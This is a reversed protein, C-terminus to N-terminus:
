SRCYRFFNQSSRAHAIECADALRLLGCLFRLRISFTTSNYQIEIKKKVANIDEIKRHYFTLEGLIYKEIKLLRIGDFQNRIFERGKEHHKKRVNRNTEESEKYLMGVDHLWVGSLLLFIEYENLTKQVESPILRYLIDIINKCHQVGHDPFHPEHVQWFRLLEKSMYNELSILKVLIV